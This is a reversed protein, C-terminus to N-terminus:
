EAARRRPLRVLWVRPADCVCLLDQYMQVLEPSGCLPSPDRAIAAPFYDDTAPTIYDDSSICDPIM